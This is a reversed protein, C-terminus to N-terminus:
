KIPEYNRTYIVIGAVKLKERQWHGFYLLLRKWKLMFIVLFTFIAM